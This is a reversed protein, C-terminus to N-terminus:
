IHRFLLEQGELSLEDLNRIDYRNGDVDNLIIRGPAPRQINERLNRTTFRCLGRDTEMTWDVTGFRERASVIGTVVPVIYHRGLYEAVIKRNEVSLEEPDVILGVEENAGDRLSLFRDPESLPFARLINVKLYSRDDAITMRLIAGHMFFSLKRPDLFALRSAEVLSLPAEPQREEVTSM